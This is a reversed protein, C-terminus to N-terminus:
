AATGKPLHAWAVVGGAILDSGVERWRRGDRYGLWVPESGGEINILVTITDDPLQEAPRHWTITETTM